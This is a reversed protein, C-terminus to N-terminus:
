DDVGVAPPPAAGRRPPQVGDHIPSVLRLVYICVVTTGAVLLVAILADTAPVFELVSLGIGGSFASVVTWTGIGEPVSAVIRERGATTYWFGCGVGLAAAFGHDTIQPLGPGTHVFWAFVPLGVLLVLFEGRRGGPTTWEGDDRVWSLPRSGM